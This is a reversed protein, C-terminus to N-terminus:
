DESVFKLINNIHTNTDIKTLKHASCLHLFRWLGSSPMLAGLVPTVPPQSGSLPSPVVGLDEAFANLVRLWQAGLRKKKKKHTRRFIHMYM